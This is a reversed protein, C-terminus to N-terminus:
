TDFLQHLLLRAGSLMDLRGGAVCYPNRSAEDANQLARAALNAFQLAQAITVAKRVAAYWKRV